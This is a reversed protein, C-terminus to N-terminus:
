VGSRVVPGASLRLPGPVLAARVLLIAIGAWWADHLHAREGRGARLRAADIADRV